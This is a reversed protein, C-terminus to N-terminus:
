EKRRGTVLCTLANPPAPLARVDVFGHARLLEAVEQPEAILGGFMAVRLRALADRLPDGSIQLVPVLLWGGPRLARHLNSVIPEVASAPVFLSPLWALDFANADDLDEGRQERLAIRDALGASDIRRRAVALAPALPDIGVIELMPWTRAMEVALAGVGTGVELFAAGPKELRESLGQLKPAIVSKLRGPFNATADGAAELLEPEGHHWGPGRSAAFMLKANTLSFTRVQALLPRLEAVDHNGLGAEFGLALLVKDVHPRLRGDLAIGSVKADMAAALAALADAFAGLTSVRDRLAEMTAIGKVAEKRPRSSPFQLVQQDNM